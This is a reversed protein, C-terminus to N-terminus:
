ANSVCVTEIGAVGTGMSLPRNLQSSKNPHVLSAKTFTQSPITKNDEDLVCGDDNPDRGPTKCWWVLLFLHFFVFKIQKWGDTM